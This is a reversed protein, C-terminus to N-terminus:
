RGFLQTHRAANRFTSELCATLKQAWYAANPEERISDHRGPIVYVEFGGGAVTKWRLRNDEFRNKCENDRALFYAIKASIRKPPM